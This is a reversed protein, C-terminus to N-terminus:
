ESEARALELYRQHLKEVMAHLHEIHGENLIVDDARQRREERSMQAAMIAEIQKESVRDRTAARHRQLSEHADVLLTRQAFRDQGSEFLLPSVLITYPSTSADLQRRIEEAIRPHTIAELRRRQEPDAFVIRRLAARDLTGDDQLVDRGFADAIEDLAPSGPEVIVRSARDADVVTIGLREFHDTALTKGSGIGGTLGIVLM